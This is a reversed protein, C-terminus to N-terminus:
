FTEFDEAEFGEAFLRNQLEVRLDCRNDPRVTGSLGIDGLRDAKHQAFLRHLRHAAFTAFVKNEVARLRRTAGVPRVDGDNKIVGLAFKGEVEVLHRDSAFHVAVAGILVEDVAGLDPEFINEFQQGGHVDARGSMM